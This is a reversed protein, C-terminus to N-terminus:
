CIFTIFKLIGERLSSLLRNCIVVISIEPESVITMSDIENHHYFPPPLPGWGNLYLAPNYIVVLEYHFCM